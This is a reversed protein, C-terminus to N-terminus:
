VWECFIEHWEVECGSVFYKMGSLKV